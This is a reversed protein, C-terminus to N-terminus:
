VEQPTAAAVSGKSIQPPGVKVVHCGAIFGILAVRNRQECRITM